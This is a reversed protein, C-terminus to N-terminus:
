HTSCSLGAPLGTASYDGVQLYGSSTMDSTIQYSVPALLAVTTGNSSTINPFARAYSGVAVEFPITLDTTGDANTVHVNVSVPYHFGVPALGTYKLTLVLGSNISFDFDTIPDVTASTGGIHAIVYYYTVHADIRLVSAPPPAVIPLAM